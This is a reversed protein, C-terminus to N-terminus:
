FTKEIQAASIILILPGEERITDSLQNKHELRLESHYDSSYKEVCCIYSFGIPFLFLIKM